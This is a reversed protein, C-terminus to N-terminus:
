GLVEHPSIAATKDGVRVYDKVALPSKIVSLDVGPAGATLYYDSLYNRVTSLAKSMVASGMTGIVSFNDIIHYARVEQVSFGALKEGLGAPLVSVGRNRSEGRENLFEEVTSGKYLTVRFNNEELFATVRRSAETEDL